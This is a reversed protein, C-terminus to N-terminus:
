IFTSRHIHMPMHPHLLEQTPNSMTTDLSPSLLFFPSPPVYITLLDTFLKIRCNSPSWSSLLSSIYHPMVLFSSSFYAFARALVISNATQTNSISYVLYIPWTMIRNQYCIFSFIQYESQVTCRLARPHPYFPAGVGMVIPRSNATFISSFSVHYLKPILWHGM